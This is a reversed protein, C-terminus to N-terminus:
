EVQQKPVDEGQLLEPHGAQNQRDSQLIARSRVFIGPLVQGQLRLGYLIQQFTHNTDSTDYKENVSRSSLTLMLRDNGLLDIGGLIFPSINWKFESEDSDKDYYEYSIDGIVGYKGNEYNKYWDLSLGCENIFSGVRRTASDHINDNYRVEEFASLTLRNPIAAAATEFYDSLFSQAQLQSMCISSFLVAAVVKFSRSISRMDM